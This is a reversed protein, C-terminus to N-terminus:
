EGLRFETAKEGLPRNSAVAPLSPVTLSQLTAVPRCNAPRSPWASRIPPTANEGSPRVSAAM